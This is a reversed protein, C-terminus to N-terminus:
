KYLKHCEQCAAFCVFRDEKLGLSQKMMHWSQPLSDYKSRNRSEGCEKIVIKMFKILSETATNPLKYKSRFKMIWILIWIFPEEQPIDSTGTQDFTPHSYDEFINKFEDNDSYTKDNSEDSKQLSEDDCIEDDTMYENSSADNDSAEDVEEVIRIAPGTKARKKRPLFLFEQENNDPNTLTSHEIVVHEVPTETLDIPSHEEGQSIIPPNPEDQSVINSHTEDPTIPNPEGQPHTKTSLGSKKEHARKTRLDVLRRNCKDCFCQVKERRKRSAIEVVLDESSPQNLTSSSSINIDTNELANKIVWKRYFNL